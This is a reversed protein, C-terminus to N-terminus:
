AAGGGFSVGRRDINRERGSLLTDYQYELGSQGTGDAGVTGVVSSAIPASPEVTQTAPLINIGELNLNQVAQAVQDDVLRALYVFGSDESLESELTAVPQDSFPRM